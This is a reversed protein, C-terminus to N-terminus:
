SSKMGHHFGEPLLRRIACHFFPCCLKLPPSLTNLIIAAGSIGGSIFINNTKCVRTIHSLLRSRRIMALSTPMFLPGTCYIRVSMDPIDLNQCFPHLSHQGIILFPSPEINRSLEQRAIFIMGAIKDLWNYGLILCANVVKVWDFICLLCQFCGPEGRRLFKLPNM